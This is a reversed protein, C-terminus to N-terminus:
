PPFMNMGKRHMAFGLAAGATTSSRVMVHKSPPSCVVSITSPASPHWAAVQEERAPPRLLAGVVPLLCYCCLLTSRLEVGSCLHCKCVLGPTLSRVFSVAPMLRYSHSQRGAGRGENGSTGLLDALM